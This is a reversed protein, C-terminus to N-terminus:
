EMEVLCHRLCIKHRIELKSLILEKVQESFGESTYYRRIGEVRSTTIHQQSDSPPSGGPSLNLNEIGDTDASFLRDVDSPPSSIFATNAMDTYRDCSQVEGGESESSMANDHLVPSLRLGNYGEM